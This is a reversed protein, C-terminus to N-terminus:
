VLLALLPEVGRAHTFVSHSRPRRARLRRARRQRRARGATRGLSYRPGVRGRPMRAACASSHPGDRKDPKPIETRGAIGRRKAKTETWRQTLWRQVAGVGVMMRQRVLLAAPPIRRPEPSVQRPRELLRAGLADVVVKGTRLCFRLLYHYARSTSKSNSSLSLGPHRAQEDFSRPRM